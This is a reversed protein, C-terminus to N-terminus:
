ANSRTAPVDAPAIAPASTAAPMLSGASAAAISRSRYERTGSRPSGFIGTSLSPDRQQM